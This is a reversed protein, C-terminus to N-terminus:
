NLYKGVLGTYYGAAHLDEIVTKFKLEGDNDHVGHNHAYMGTLVSSRSPCCVPTTLFAHTFTAGQDFIWKQTQPMYQMTDYRQDDTLLILFSPRTDEKVNLSSCGSLVTAFVVILSTYLRIVSRIKRRRVSKM